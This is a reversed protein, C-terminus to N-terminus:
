ERRLLQWGLMAVAIGVAAVIAPVLGALSSTLAFVTVPLATHILGRVGGARALLAAAPSPTNTMGMSPVHSHVPRRLQEVPSAWWRRDGEGRMRGFELESSARRIGRAAALHLRPITALGFPSRACM